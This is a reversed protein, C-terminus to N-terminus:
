GKPRAAASLQVPRSACLAPTTPQRILASFNDVPCRFRYGIRLLGQRTQVRWFRNDLIQDGVAVVAHGEGREDVVSWIEPQFGLAKAALYNHLAFTTCDGVPGLSWQIGIRYTLEHRTRLNVATLAQRVPDITSASVRSFLITLALLWCVLLGVHKLPAMWVM